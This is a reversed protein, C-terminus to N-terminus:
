SFLGGGEEDDGPSPMSQGFNNRLIVFDSLDVQGDYNFDGESFLGAGGFNNRLVVFDALDVVRDRNADGALVFFDVTLDSTTANGGAGTVSGAPLTLRYNGNPLLATPTIRVANGSTSVVLQAPDITQGTTLNRLQVMALTAPEDFTLEIAAPRADFDYRSSLLSPAASVARGPSVVLSFGASVVDLVGDGTVDAVDIESVSATAFYRDPGGFQGNGDGAYIAFESGPQHAVVLDSVGDGTLDAVAFDSPNFGTTKALVHVFNLTGDGRLLYLRDRDVALAALDAINDDNYDVIQLDRVASPVNIGTVFTFSGDGNGVSLNLDGGAASVFDPIQDGNVDGLVVRGDGPQSAAPTAVSGIDVASWMQRGTSLISRATSQSSVDFTAVFDDRGDRNLDAIAVDRTFFAPANYLTQYVRQSTFSGAGDGFHAVFVQRSVDPDATYETFVTLVDLNDDGDFDGIGALRDSTSITTTLANASDFHVVVGAQGRVIDPTGDGNFDGTFLTQALTNTAVVTQPFDASTAGVKIVTAGSGFQGTFSTAISTAVLDPNGDTDVDVLTVHSNAIPLVRDNTVAFTPGGNTTALELVNIDSGGVVIEPRGDSAIDTFGAVADGPSAPRTISAVVGGPSVSRVLLETNNSAPDRRVLAIEPSTNLGIEGVVPQGLDGTVTTTAFTSFTPTTSGPATTNTLLRATSGDFGLIDPRSDTDVPGVAYHSTIGPVAATAFSGRTASALHVSVGGATNAALLDDRGDTNFDAVQLTHKGPLTSIGVAFNAVTVNFNGAGNGFFLLLQSPGHAGPALVALDAHNDGDFDGAAVDLVAAPLPVTLGNTFRGGPEGFNLVVANGLDDAHALDALGDENFDATTTDIAHTGAEFRPAPYLSDGSLLRRPELREHRATRITM